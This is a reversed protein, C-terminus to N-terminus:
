EYEVGGGNTQQSEIMQIEGTGNVAQEDVICRIVNQRSPLEFMCRRLLQEQISRLGRAGTGRALAKAAIATLAEPTFELEVNDYAFLKQYQRVLAHRPETLIQVLAAKDLQELIAIIPFRGIFEPILGFRLLDEPQTEHLLSEASIKNKRRLSMETPQPKIRKAVHEELGVFAGGAIFLINHSDMTLQENKHQREKSKKPLKVTTGEVLKLLAQQVGEGSVDRVVTPSESTKALKDIEDIYIIGWQAQELDGEAVDLLRVLISEVDDGVYGTQTLTTADAIAFPVGVIKALTSALLTKGTGSPGLMLVNSKSIEVDHYLTEIHNNGQNGHYLRKYHNYVAVALIEKALEQGIVYEDLQAKITKPTPLPNHSQTVAHERKWNIVLEHATRVCDECIYGKEGAILPSDTPVKLGCFSCHPPSETM